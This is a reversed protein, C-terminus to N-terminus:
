FCATVKTTTSRVSQCWVMYRRLPTVDTFLFATRTVALTPSRSVRNRNSRFSGGSLWSMVMTMVPTASSFRYLASIKTPPWSPPVTILASAKCLSMLVSRTPTSPPSRAGSPRKKCRVAHIFTSGRNSQVPRKSRAYPAMPQRCLYLASLLM